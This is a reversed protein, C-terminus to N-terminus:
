VPMSATTFLTSATLSITGDGNDEAAFKASNPLEEDTTRAVIAIDSGTYNLYFKNGNKAVMTLSYVKDGEPLVVETTAYYADIAAQLATGAETDPKEEAAAIAAKLAERPAAAPYGVGEFGLLEYASEILAITNDDKISGAITWSFKAAECEKGDETKLSGAPITLTYTGAETIAPNVTILITEYDYLWEINMTFENGAENTLTWGTPLEALSPGQGAEVRISKIETVDGEVTPDLAATVTFREPEVVAEKVNFTFTQGAFEEDDVSKILGAPIEFTYTGTKTVAANM